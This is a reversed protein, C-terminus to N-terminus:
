RIVRVPRNPEPGFFRDLISEEGGRHVSEGRFGTIVTVGGRYASGGGSGAAGRLMHAAECEAILELRTM